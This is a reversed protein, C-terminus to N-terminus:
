KKASRKIDEEHQRLIEMDNEIMGLMKRLGVLEYREAEFEVTPKKDNLLLDTALKQVKKQYWLKIYEWGKTRILQQYASGRAL